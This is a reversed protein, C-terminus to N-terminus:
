DLEMQEGRMWAPIDGPHDVGSANAEVKMLADLDPGHTYGTQRDIFYAQYMESGINAFVCVQEATSNMLITQAERRAEVHTMSTLARTGVHNGNFDYFQIFYHKSM